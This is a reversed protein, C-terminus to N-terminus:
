GSGLGMSRRRFAEYLCLAASVSVNLSDMEVTMPIRVSKVPLDFWRPDLGNGEEGLVFAMPGGMEFTWLEAKSGADAVVVEVKENFLWTTCEEFTAEVVPLHFLHGRSARIANPNEMECAGGVLIIGSCGAGRATRAIAGLNGPKEIRDLVLLPAKRGLKLDALTLRSRKAVGLWGDPNDRVSLKGFVPESVEVVEIERRDAEEALEGSSRGTGIEYCVVLRKLALDARLAELIETEGEVLFHGALKRGRRDKLAYLEKILPNQRSTIREM